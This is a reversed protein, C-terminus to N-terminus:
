HPPFFFIEEKEKRLPVAHLEVCLRWSSRLSTSKIKKWRKSTLEPLSRACISGKPAERKDSEVQRESAQQTISCFSSPPWCISEGQPTWVWGPCAPSQSHTGCNQFMKNPTSLTAEGGTVGPMQTRAPLVVPLVQHTQNVGVRQIRCQEVVDLLQNPGTFSVLRVWLSTFILFVVGVMGSQQLHCADLHRFLLFLLILSYNWTPKKKKYFNVPIGKPSFTGRFLHDANLLVDTELFSLLNVHKITSWKYEFSYSEMKAILKSFNKHWKTESFYKLRSRSRLVPAIIVGLWPVKTFTDVKKRKRQPPESCDDPFLNSRWIIVKYRTIYENVCTMVNFMKMVNKIVTSICVNQLYPFLLVTNM